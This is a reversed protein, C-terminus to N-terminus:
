FRAQVAARFFTKKIWEKKTMEDDKLSQTLCCVKAVSHPRSSRRPRTILAGCARQLTITIIQQIM